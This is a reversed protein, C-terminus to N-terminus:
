RAGTSTQALVKEITSFIEAADTAFSEVVAKVRARIATEDESYVDSAVFKAKKLYFTSWKQGEPARYTPLRNVDELINARLPENGPSIVAKAVANKASWRM